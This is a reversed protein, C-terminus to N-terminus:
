AYWVFLICTFSHTYHFSFVCLTTIGGKIWENLGKRTHPLRCTVKTPTFQNPAMHSYPASHGYNWLM